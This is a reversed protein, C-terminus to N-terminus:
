GNTSDKETFSSLWIKHSILGNVLMVVSAVLYIAWLNNEHRQGPDRIIADKGVLGVIGLIFLVAAIWFYTNKMWSNKTPTVPRKESV